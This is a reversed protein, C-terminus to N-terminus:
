IYIPSRVAHREAAAAACASARAPWEAALGHTSMRPAVHAQSPAREAAAAACAWKAHEAGQKTHAWTLCLFGSSFIVFVVSFLFFM